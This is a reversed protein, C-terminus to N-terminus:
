LMQLTLVVVVTEAIQGAIQERHLTLDVCDWLILSKMICFKSRWSMLKLTTGGLMTLASMQFYPLQSFLTLFIVMVFLSNAIM